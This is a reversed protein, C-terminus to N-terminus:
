WRFHLQRHVGTRPRCNTLAVRRCPVILERLLCLSAPPLGSVASFEFNLDGLASSSSSSKIRPAVRAACRPPVEWM